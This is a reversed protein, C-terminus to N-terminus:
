GGIFNDHIGICYQPWHIRLQPAISGGTNQLHHGIFGNGFDVVLRQNHRIQGTFCHLLHLVALPIGEGRAYPILFVPNQAPVSSIWGYWAFKQASIAPILHTLM